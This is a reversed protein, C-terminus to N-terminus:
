CATTSRVNSFETLIWLGFKQAFIISKEKGEFNIQSNEGFNEFNILSNEGFNEFNAGAQAKQYGLLKFYPKAPEFITKM